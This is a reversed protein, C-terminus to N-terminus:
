KVKVYQNIVQFLADRRIPKPLYDDCGSELALMRDGSMAYATQAVIPVKFGESKIIKTAELGDMLPMKIDMLILDINPNERVIRIADSGNLAFLLKANTPKLMSELLLYNSPEDEAILICISSWDNNDKDLPLVDEPEPISPVTFRITFTTGENVKSEFNIEGNMLEILKKSISLGLGLGGYKRTSTDDVQRFKEFIIKQKEPPIGIGTDKIFLETTEKDIMRYGFTIGGEETFKISNRFIAMMVQNLKATDTVLCVGPNSPDPQYDILLNPKNSSAIEGILLDNLERMFSDLEISENSLSIEGSELVSAYFMDNIIGLLHNGSHNIVKVFDIIEETSYSEDILNSFGIIANLPTRLEHSMTALFSSKLRDSEEAREKALKLEATSKQRAVINLSAEMLLRLQHVDAADYGSAKNYLCVLNSGSEDIPFNVCMIRTVGELSDAFALERIQSETNLILPQNNNSIHKLISKTNNKDGDTLKQYITLAGPSLFLPKIEKFNNNLSIMMGDVSGTIDIAATIALQNLNEINEHQSQAISLLTELRAANKLIIEKAQKQQTIDRYIGYVAKQEGDIFVPKGIIAVDILKGSKTRRRTELDIVKGEIVANTAESGEGSLIDPVILNNIFIGLYEDPEYEFLETFKKNANLIRDKLDLIAIAYPAFDFLYEFYKHQIRLQELANVRDSVDLGTSQIEVLTGADDFLGRDTWQHWVIHGDLTKDKHEDTEVPNDVTIRDIKKLLRKKSDDPIWDYFNKGLIDGETTRYYTCYARNVFTITGDPKWRILFETQDEFVREINVRTHDLEQQIKKRETLDRVNAIILDKEQNAISALIEVPIFQGDKKKWITELLYPSKTRIQNINNKSVELNGDARFSTIKKRKLEDVSYGLLTSAKDNAELILGDFDHYIIADNSLKFLMRFKEESESLESNLDDLLTVETFLTSFTKDKEPFALVHFTKNLISSYSQFDAVEGTSIVQEYRELWYEEIGPILTKVNKGVANKLGTLEEFIANTELFTYDIAKGDADYIMQHLAYGMKFKGFVQSILASSFNDSLISM